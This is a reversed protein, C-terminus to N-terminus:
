SEPHQKVNEGSDERMKEKKARYLKMLKKNELAAAAARQGAEKKGLATGWGLLKNREGWGDLYVGITFLPLGSHKDKAPGPMDEYRLQIGKAGIHVRLQDKACLQTMPTSPEAERKKEKKENQVIQEKLTRGFLSKLWSVTNQLGNEPDSIVAAAVYAEFMDAHIKTIDKDNSKGQGRFLHADPPLQARADLGYERFYGALNRNRVVLERLQSLQGAPVSQFTQYILMSATLELFADGLWELREYSPGQTKMGPHRFVTQELEADLIKPIPPFAATIESSVWPTVERTTPVPLSRLGPPKHDIGNNETSTRALSQRKSDHGDEDDLSPAQRKSM